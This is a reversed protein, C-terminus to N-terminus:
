SSVNKRPALLDVCTYVKTFIITYKYWQKLVNVLISVWKENIIGVDVNERCM